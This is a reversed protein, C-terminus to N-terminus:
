LAAMQRRVRWWVFGGIVILFSGTGAISAMTSGAQLVGPDHPGDVLAGALGAVLFALLTAGAALAMEKLSSARWSGPRRPSGDGRGNFTAGDFPM